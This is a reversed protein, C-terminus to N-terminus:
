NAAAQLAKLRRSADARGSFEVGNALLKQLTDAAKSRDGTEELAVAWHYRVNPDEPLGVAAQELLSLGQKKDGRRVYLWGLTDAISSNQPHAKYAREAYEVARTDGREGYIWALNNLAGANAADIELVAEYHKIATDQEGRGLALSGAAFYASADKPHTRLWADLKADAGPQGARRTATYFQTALELGPALDYAKAFASAAADFRNEAVHM